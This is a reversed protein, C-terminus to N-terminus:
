IGANKLLPFIKSKSASIVIEFYGNGIHFTEFYINNESLIDEIFDVEMGDIGKIKTEEKMKLEETKNFNIM